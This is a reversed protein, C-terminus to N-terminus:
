LSVQYYKSSFRLLSYNETNSIVRNRERTVETTRSKSIVTATAKSEELPLGSGVCDRCKRDVWGEIDHEGGLHQGGCIRAIIGAIVGVITIAALVVLLTEISRHTSSPSSTVETLVAVPPAGVLPPLLREDELRVVM